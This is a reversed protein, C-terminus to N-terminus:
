RRGVGPVRWCRRSKNNVYLRAQLREHLREQLREQHREHLHDHLRRTRELQDLFIQHEM